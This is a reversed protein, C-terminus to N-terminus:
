FLSMQPCSSRPPTASGTSAAAYVLDALRAYGADNPHFGDSSYMGPQYFTGDCMLDIVLAGQSRLANVQASFSM